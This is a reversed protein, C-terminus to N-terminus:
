KSARLAIDSASAAMAQGLHLLSFVFRVMDNNEAMPLWPTIAPAVGDQSEQVGEADHAVQPEWEDEYSWYFLAPSTSEGLRCGCLHSV